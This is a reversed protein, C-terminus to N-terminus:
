CRCNPCPWKKGCRKWNVSLGVMSM